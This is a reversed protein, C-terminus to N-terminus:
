RAAHCGSAGDYEAVVDLKYQATFTQRRAKEPVEPDPHEQKGTVRGADGPVLARDLATVTMEPISPLYPDRVPAPRAALRTVGEALRQSHPSIGCRM